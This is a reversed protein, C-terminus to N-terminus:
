GGHRQNSDPGPLWIEDDPGGHSEPPGKENGSDKRTALIFSLRMDGVAETV